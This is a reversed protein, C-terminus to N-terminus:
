KRPEGSEAMQVKFREAIRRMGALRAERVEKDTERAFGAPSPCIVALLVLATLCRIMPAGEWARFRWGVAILRGGTYRQLTGRNYCVLVAATQLSRTVRFLLSPM